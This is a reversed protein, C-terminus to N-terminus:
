GAHHIATRENPDGLDRCCLGEAQARRYLMVDFRNHHMAEHWDVLADLRAPNPDRRTNEVRLPVVPVGMIRCIAPYHEDLRDMLGVFRFRGRLNALAQEVHEKGIGRAPVSTTPARALMRTMLNDFEDTLGHQVVLPLPLVAAGIPFMTANSMHHYYQSRLRAEPERLITIYQLRDTSWDVTGFFMHGMVLRAASRQTLPLQNLEEPTVGTFKDPYVFMAEGTPMTSQLAMRLSTGATKQIHVLVWTPLLPAPDPISAPLTVSLGNELHAGNEDTVSVVPGLARLASVPIAFGFRGIRSVASCVDERPLCAQFVLSNGDSTSCVIRELREPYSLNAIWGVVFRDTVADVYGIIKDM